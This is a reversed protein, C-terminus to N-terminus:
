DLSFETEQLLEQLIPFIFDCFEKNPNNSRADILSLCINIGSAVGFIVQNLPGGLRLNYKSLIKNSYYVFKVIDPCNYYYQEIIKSEDQLLIEKVDKELNSFIENSNTLTKLCTAAKYSSREIFLYKYFNYIEDQELKGIKYGIGFDILGIKNELFMINGSHMDSHGIGYFFAAIFTTKGIIKAYAAKEETTLKNIDKGEIFDMVLVNNYKNTIESYVNPVELYDVKNSFELWNNIHTLENMFDIQEWIVNSNDEIFDFLNLNNVVPIFSLLKGFLYLDDIAKKLKLDINNKLVKIVVTNDKYTGKYVLAVIGANIPERSDFVIGEDELSNLVVNNKESLSYPVHNTYKLLYDKQENNFLLSNVSIGQIIKIYTVNFSELENCIDKVLKLSDKYFVYKISNKTLLFLIYFLNKYNEFSLTINM